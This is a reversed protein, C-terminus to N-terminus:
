NTTPLPPLATCAAAHDAAAKRAVDIPMGTMGNGDRCGTCHWWSHEAPPRMSHAPWPDAGTIEVTAGATNAYRIWIHGPGPGQPADGLFAEAGNLRVEGHDAAMQLLHLIRDHHGVATGGDLVLLTQHIERVSTRAQGLERQYDLIALLVRYADDLRLRRDFPDPTFDALLKEAPDTPTM